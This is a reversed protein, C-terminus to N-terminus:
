DTIGVANFATKIQKLVETESGYLDTASQLVAARADKFSATSNLYFLSQYYIDLTAQTGLAQTILYAAHNPIGSNIHVGGNDTKETCHKAIYQEDTHAPQGWSKLPHNVSHDNESYQDSRFSPDDMRRLAYLWPQYPKMADEAILYPNAAGRKLSFLMAIADAWSENLAGPEKCYVLDATADIVAHTLEHSVIDFSGALTKFIKEGDGYVMYDGSWFANDYGEGMDDGYHVVSLVGMALGSDQWWSLDGLGKYLNIVNISYTYADIASPDKWVNDRDKLLDIRDLGVTYKYTEYQVSPNKGQQSALLYIGNAHKTTKFKKLKGQHGIGSGMAAERTDFEHQALTLSFLAPLARPKFAQAPTPTAALSSAQFPNAIGSVRSESLIISGDQADVWIQYRTPTPKLQPAFQIRWALHTQGEWHFYVLDAQDITPANTTARQTAQQALRRATTLNITPEPPITIDTVLHNAITRLQGQHLRAVLKGGAVELGHHTQQYSLMQGAPTNASKNFVLQTEAPIGLLSRHQQIFDAILDSGTKRSNPHLQGSLYRAHQQTADWTITLKPDQARLQQLEDVPNAHVLTSVACLLSTALVLQRLKPTATTKSPM